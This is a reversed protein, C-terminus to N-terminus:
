FGPGGGSAQMFLIVGLLDDLLLLMAHEGVGFLM